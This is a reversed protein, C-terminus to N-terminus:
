INLVDNMSYRGPKQQAAWKAARVAGRAFIARDTAIHGLTIREEESAFIVSHEGVVTGGRLTAFGIAGPQRPGTHGDRTSQRVDDLDVKRGEAAAQGLGLATGSPADVKRRHHMELVEIDWDEGLTAALQRTLAMLLTVGVSMNPAYVIATHRAARDLAAEQEADLGTTGIVHACRAQAALAVHEVTASPATFEIVADAQAFVPATDSSAMVGQSELGALSGLDSGEEPAGPEVSGGVLRCDPDEIVTRLLMRGMHGACGIIAIRVGGSGAEGAQSGTM